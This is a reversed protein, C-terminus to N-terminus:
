TGAAADRRAARGPRWRMVYELGNGSEGEVAFGLREYLRRAPNTKLVHLVVSRGEAAARELLRGILAAGWGQGQRAPAIQVQVLMWADDKEGDAGDVADKMEHAKFLGILEDGLYALRADELRYEVRALLSAEDDPAGASRLHPLMTARRLALLAPVDDRTAQRLTLAAVDVATAADRAARAPADDGSARHARAATKEAAADVSAKDM